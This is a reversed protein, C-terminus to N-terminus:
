VMASQKQRDRGQNEDELAQDSRFTLLFLCMQASLRLWLIYVNWSIDDNPSNLALLPYWAIMNVFTKISQAESM